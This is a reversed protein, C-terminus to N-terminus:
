VSRPDPLAKRDAKGNPTLPIADLKIFRSPIMYDPLNGALFNKLEKPAIETTATYYAVIVVVSESYQRTHVICEDIQEHKLLRAEIEGLEIRLGRIKVQNDIRNIYDINGDPFWRALDGTRYMQEGEAFPNKVFKQATLEVRNLYGRAVGVGAIILEGEEGVSLVNHEHGAIYIQTNSIPKGIPIKGEVEGNACDYHTVDVTAETPGYLNILSKNGDVNFLTNFQSVHKTSLKEGSAFVLRVSALKNTSDYAQIYELFVGLMSPVFHMVSVSHQEITDIITAPNKEGNPALLCMQAGEIAWWFLEWVSVDFNYPTKQLLVDDPQIPYAHQMWKLRNVVSRHEILVGKPMGTSGSTYIVYLLDRSTNICPLPQDDVPVNFNELAVVAGTFDKVKDRWEEQVLLIGAQSDDLLLLVRAFPDYPSLPLYAGGAKMIGFIGIIMELSRTCLIGVIQERCVGEKRLHRALANARANLEGYTLTENKYKVAIRGPDRAVHREFLEQVTVDEEFPFDTDNFDILVDAENAAWATTKPYTTNM